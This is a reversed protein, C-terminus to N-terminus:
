GTFRPTVQVVDDGGTSTSSGNSGPTEPDDIELEVSGIECFGGQPRSVGRQDTLVAADECEETPIADVLPSTTAPLMTPTPGGNAALPGLEPDGGDQIDGEATFGCSSDTVFNYGHSTIPGSSDCAPGGNTSAEILSGFADISPTEDGGTISSRVTEEAVNDAITSLVLLVGDDGYLLSNAAENGTVTSNELWLDGGGTSVISGDVHSSGTVTSEVLTVNGHADITGSENDVFHVREALVAGGAKIAGGDGGNGGTMTLDRVAVTGAAVQELVREGDCTQRITAGNGTIIVRGNTSLDLQGGEACTLDYTTGASLVLEDDEGNANATEFADRLDAETPGVTIVEAGAPTPVLVSALGTAAVAGIAALAQTSRRRAGRPTTPGSRRM